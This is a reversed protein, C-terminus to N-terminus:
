ASPWHQLAKKAAEHVETGATANKVIQECVHKDLMQDHIMAVFGFGKRSYGRFSYGLAPRSVQSSLNDIIAKFGSDPLSM